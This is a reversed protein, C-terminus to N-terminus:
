LPSGRIAQVLRVKWWMIREKTLTYKIHNFMCPSQKSFIKILLNLETWNLKNIACPVLECYMMKLWLLFKLDIICVHGSDLLSTICPCLARNPSRKWEKSKLFYCLSALTLIIIFKKIIQKSNDRIKYINRYLNKDWDEQHSSQFLTRKCLQESFM